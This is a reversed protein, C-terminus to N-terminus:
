IFDIAPLEHFLAAIVAELTELPVDGGRDSEQFATILRAVFPRAMFLFGSGAPLPSGAPDM